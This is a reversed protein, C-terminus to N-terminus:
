QKLSVLDGDRTILDKTVLAGLIRMLRSRMNATVRQFGLVAASESLADDVSLSFNRKVVDIIAAAIEEPAIRDLKKDQQPLNERNRM